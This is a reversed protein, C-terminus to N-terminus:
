FPGANVWTDPGASNASVYRGKAGFCEEVKYVIGEDDTEEYQKHGFLPADGASDMRAKMGPGVIIVDNGGPPLLIPDPTDYRPNVLSVDIGTVGCLNADLWHQRLECDDWGGFPVFAKTLDQQMAWLRRDNFETVGPLYADWWWKASYIGTQMDDAEWTDMERLVFRVYDLGMPEELDAWWRGIRFGRALSHKARLNALSDGNFPLVYGDNRPMGATVCLQLQEATHGPPYQGGGQVAQIIAREVGNAMWCQIDGQHLPWRTFNSLDVVQRM